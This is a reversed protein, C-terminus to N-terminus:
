GNPGAVGAARSGAGAGRRLLGQLWPILAFASQGPLGIWQPAQRYSRLHELLSAGGLTSALVAEAVLLFLLAFGGMALRPSAGWEGGRRALIWRSVWWSIALIVPLEILVAATEGCWRLLVLRRLVGLAFGAAFVLGFYRLAASAVTRLRHM